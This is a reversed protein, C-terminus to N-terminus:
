GVAGEGGRHAWPLLAAGLARVSPYRKAPDRHMARLVVDDFAAPLAPDLASPPAVRSSVIAHM